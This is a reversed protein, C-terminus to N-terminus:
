RTPMPPASSRPGNSRSVQIRGGRIGQHRVGVLRGRRTEDKQWSVFKLVEADASLPMAAVLMAAASATAVYKGIRKIM